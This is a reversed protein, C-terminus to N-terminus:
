DSITLYDNPNVYEMQENLMAFHLHHGTSSGPNPDINPDGGELGIVEGQAVIQAEKVKIESLHAYMSYLVDGFLEHRIIVANGYTGYDGAFVVEGIAVAKIECHWPTGFDIGYHFAYEGTVPHIRWGYDDTVSVAEPDDFPMIFTGAFSSGDESSFMAGFLLTCFLVVALVGGIMLVFESSMGASIAAGAKKTFAATKSVASATKHVVSEMARRKKAAAYKKKSLFVNNKKQESRLQYGKMNPKESVDNSVLYEGRGTSSKRLGYNKRARIRYFSQKVGSTAEEVEREEPRSDKGESQNHRIRPIQNIRTKLTNQHLRLVSQKTKVDAKM